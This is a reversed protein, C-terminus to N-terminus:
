SDEPIMYIHHTPCEPRVEAWRTRRCGAFPCRYQRAEPVDEGKLLDDQM